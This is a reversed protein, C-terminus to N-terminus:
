VLSLSLVLGNWAVHLFISTLNDTKLRVMGLTLGLSGYSLWTAPSSPHHALAFLFSTLLFQALPKSLKEWLLERYCYEEAISANVLFLLFSVFPVQRQVTMLTEQNQPMESALLRVLLSLFVMFVLSSLIWVMRKKWSIPSFGKGYHLWDWSMIALFGAQLLLLLEEDLYGVLFLSVLLVNVHIAGYVILLRIM